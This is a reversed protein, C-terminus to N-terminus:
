PAEDHAEDEPCGDRARSGGEDPCEDCADGVGDHDRDSQKANAEAPCNDEANVLGDGDADVSKEVGQMQDLSLGISPDDAPPGAPEEDEPPPSSDPDSSPAVAAPESIDAERPRDAEEPECGVLGFILLFLVGITRVLRTRCARDYM